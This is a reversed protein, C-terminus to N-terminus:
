ESTESGAFQLLHCGVKAWASLVRDAVLCGLRAVAVGINIQCIGDMGFTQKGAV